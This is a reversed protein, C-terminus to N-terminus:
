AKQIEGGKLVVKGCCVVTDVFGKMKKGNLPTNRGLSRFKRADVVWEKDPNIVTIDAPKGKAIEPIEMGVIKAPGVTMRNLLKPADIIGKHVLETFLQAVATELGSIGPPAINIEVEKDERAHPAHDTAICDITGDLLAKRLAEVDESSRLPPNVKYFTNYTGLSEDTLTLHHPTVECSVKIGNKKADAVLKAGYATSIHMIHVRSDTEKALIIDRAIMTEESSKPIAHLGYLTSYYGENCIGNGTLNKDECHNAVLLNFAKSYKLALLMISASSIPEGDDTVMKVGAKALGGMEALSEGKRGSTVTGVPEVKILGVKQATQRIYTATAEDDCPPDTNPMAFITTFGGVTAAMVGSKITEKHEFGPERLHVHLDILGPSVLMGNCDITEDGTLNPAVDTIIGDEIKVDADFLEENVVDVVKGNKLVISRM